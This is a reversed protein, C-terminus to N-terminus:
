QLADNANLATLNCRGNQACSYNRSDNILMVVKYLEADPPVQLMHHIRMGVDNVIYSGKQDLNYQSMVKYNPELLFTSNHSESTFRM